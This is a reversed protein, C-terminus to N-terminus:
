AYETEGSAAELERARRKRRWPLVVLWLGEAAFCAIAIALPWQYRNVLRLRIDSTVNKASLQQILDYITDIDANGPTSRIYGGNGEIAIRSLTQEDLKSLHPKDGDMITTRIGRPGTYTIETGRPDGVGIVFVRAHKAAEAALAVADGSGEEGDSILLIARSDKTYDGTEEEQKRFVDIALELASSIDTGEFSISDTDVASLVSRFYGTDLTLPCMLEAAGSFAILGFRDGPTRDVISVIKQKARELRNPLPNEALMSKSVDLCILIDHSRRQVQQWSEGWHPQALAILLFGFGAVTLWFLPRRLRADHGPLLRPALRSDVFRRLRENRNREQRRLVFVLLGMAAIGAMLWWPLQDMPFGFSFNM